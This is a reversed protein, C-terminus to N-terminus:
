NPVLLEGRKSDFAMSFPNGFRSSPTNAPANRLIRQPKANGNAARDFVLATHGFDAVWLENHIPDFAVGMPVSIGTQPGKLTRIPRVNGNASRSFILVSNGGTNAVAIENHVPDVAVGSPWNLETNAGQVVRLPATDGGASDAFVTISPPQYHGGGTYDVDWYARSWNGHNVVAIEHNVDDWYLGHPDAMQTKLGRIERLPPTAGTAGTRYIVIQENHEVAVAMEKRSQSFGLGYAGHPTALVQAKYDGSADFPFCAVDDGVDNETVCTLKRVPDIAVGAAFSIYTAPGKIQTLAPTIDPSDASGAQLDYLLLSKLNTDSLAVRGNTTDIAVGNFEPYPDNIARCPAINGGTARSFVTDFNIKADSGPPKTQAGANGCLMLSFLSIVVASFSSISALSPRPKM